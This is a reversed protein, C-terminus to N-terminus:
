AAAFHDSLYLVGARDMAGPEVNSKSQRMESLIKSLLKQGTRRSMSEVPPIKGTVKGQGNGPCERDPRTKIFSVEGHADGSATQSGAAVRAPVPAALARRAYSDLEKLQRLTDV